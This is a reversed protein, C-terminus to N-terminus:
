IIYYFLMNFVHPVEDKSYAIIYTLKKKWWKEYCDYFLEKSCIGDHHKWLQQSESFVETWVHDTWDVVYRAEYGLARCFLTFANAWEGCRGTRTELLRLAFKPKM